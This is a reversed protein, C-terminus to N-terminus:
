PINVSRVAAGVGILDRYFELSSLLAVSTIPITLPFYHSICSPVLGWLSTQWLLVPCQYRHQRGRQGRFVGDPAEQSLVLPYNVEVAAM